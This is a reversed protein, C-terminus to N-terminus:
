NGLKVEYGALYKMLLVSDASNVEGDGNLDASEKTFGEIVNGALYKQIAVADTSNINGDGDLDGVVTEGIIRFKIDHANAYSDVGSNKYGYLTLNPIGEFARYYIDVNTGLITVSTLGRCNEFAGGEILTITEPLTINTLGMCGKFTDCNIKTISEPIKINSLGTCGSFSCEGIHQISDPINVSELETCGSFAYPEIYQISDPIVYSIGTKSAPYCKLSTMSKNYLVGDKSMYHMNDEDVNINTLGSCNVFAGYSIYKVFKPITISKLETCDKFTYWGIETISESLTINTLGTCGQFAPDGFETISEPLRINTLGTCYSFAGPEIKTISETFTINTLGTCGSFAYFGITTVSEPITYSSGSKKVPYCDLSTMGKNFLVGDKSIYDANDANVNINKLNTADRFAGGEIQKVSKPITINILNEEFCDCWITTVKKGDIEDPIILTGEDGHYGHITITTDDNIKYYLISEGIVYEECYSYDHIDGSAYVNSTMVPVSTALVGVILAASLLRKLHKLRM